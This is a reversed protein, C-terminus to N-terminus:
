WKPDMSNKLNAMRPGLKSRENREWGIWSGGEIEHIVNKINGNIEPLRIQYIFSEKCHHAYNERAFRLSLVKIEKTVGGKANSNAFVDNFHQLVLLLYNRLAWMPSKDTSSDPIVYYVNSVNLGKLQLYQEYTHTSLSTSDKTLVFFAKQLLDLNNYSEMIMDLEESNFHADITDTSLM